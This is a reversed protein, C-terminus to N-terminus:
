TAPARWRAGFEDLDHLAGHSQGPHQQDEAPSVPRCQESCSTVAGRDIGGDDDGAAGVAIVDVSPGAGDLDGLSTIAGGLEDSADLPGTFNGQTASIKQQSLVGGSANLFLIYVAGQHTGGDDDSIAGVALAM